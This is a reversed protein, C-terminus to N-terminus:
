GRFGGGGGGVGGWEGFYDGGGAGAFNDGDDTRSNTDGEGIVGDRCEGPAAEDLVAEIVSDSFAFDGARLGFGPFLEESGGVDVVKEADGFAYGAPEFGWAIEVDAPEFVSEFESSMGVSFHGCGDLGNV